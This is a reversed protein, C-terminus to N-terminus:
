ENDKGANDNEEELVESIEEWALKANVFDKLYRLLFKAHQLKKIQTETM